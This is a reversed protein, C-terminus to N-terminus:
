EALTRLAQQTQAILDDLLDQYEDRTHSNSQGAALRDIEEVAASLRDNIVFQYYDHTKAAQFEKLASQLRRVYERGDMKGRKKLRQQWEEFSPPLVFIALTDPKAQVIMEAGAIEVDTIAILDDQVATQLERTSIGSVQQNHILAAELYKGAQLDALVEDESRFWYERGNQELVGDNTRPQRTTDSVIFHYRGTKVLERIITSRGMSSPSVLIVLKVKELISRNESSIAYGDLVERFSDLNVLSNM